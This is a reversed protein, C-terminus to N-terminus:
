NRRLELSVGVGMCRWNPDGHALKLHIHCPFHCGDLGVQAGLVTFVAVFM